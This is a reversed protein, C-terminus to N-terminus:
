GLEFPEAVVRPCVAAQVATNILEQVIMRAERQEVLIADCFSAILAALAVSGRKDLAEGRQM